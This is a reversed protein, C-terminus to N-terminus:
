RPRIRWASAAGPPSGLAARMTRASAFGCCLSFRLLLVDAHRNNSNSRRAPARREVGPGRSDRGAPPPFDRLSRACSTRSNAVHVRIYM